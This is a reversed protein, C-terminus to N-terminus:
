KGAAGGLQGDSEFGGTPKEPDSPSKNDSPNEKTGTEAPPQSGTGSASEDTDVFSVVTGAGVTEIKTAQTTVSGTETSQNPRSM